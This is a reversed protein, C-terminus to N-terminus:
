AKSDSQQSNDCIGDLENFLVVPITNNFPIDSCQVFHIIPSADITIEDIRGKNITVSQSIACNDVGLKRWVDWFPQSASDIKFGDLLLEFFKTIRLYNLCEKQTAKLIDYSKATNILFNDENIVNMIAKPSLRLISLAQKRKETNLSLNGHISLIQDLFDDDILNQYTESLFINSLVQTSFLYRFFEIKSSIDKITLPFENNVYKTEHLLNSIDSLSVDLNNSSLFRIIEEENKGIQALACSLIVGKTFLIRDQHMKEDLIDIYNFFDKKPFVDKIKRFQQSTIPENKSSFLTFDASDFRVLWYISNDYLIIDVTYVARSTYLNAIERIFNATSLHFEKILFDTLNDKAILHINNSNRYEEAAGWVNGNVGSLAVFYGEAHNNKFYQTQFKGLFKEWHNIDCPTKYAKCEAFIPATIQVGNEDTFTKEAVVDYENGGARVANLTVNRYGLSIFLRSCLRELEAGKQESNKGLIFLNM